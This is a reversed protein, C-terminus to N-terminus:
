GEFQLVEDETFVRFEDADPLDGELIELRNSDLKKLKLSMKLTHHTNFRSYNTVTFFTIM